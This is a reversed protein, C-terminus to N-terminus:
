HFPEGQLSPFSPSVGGWGQPRAARPDGEGRGAACGVEEREQCFETSLHEQERTATAVPLRLWSPICSGVGM